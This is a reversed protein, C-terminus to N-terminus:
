INFIKFKDFAQNKTKMLYVYTYKTNDNIFTVFHRNGGRNLLGNFECIDLHITETTDFNRDVQPSPKRTMKTQLCIEFKGNQM